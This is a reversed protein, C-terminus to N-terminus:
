GSAARCPWECGCNKLHATGHLYFWAWVHQGDFPAQLRVPLRSYLGEDVAEVRDLHTLLPMTVSYVEGFVSNGRAADAIMAPYEGCDFLAYSPETCAVGVFDAEALEGHLLQGRKLSGYVFILDALRQFGSV